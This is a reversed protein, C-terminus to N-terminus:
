AAGRVRIFIGGIGKPERLNRAIFDVVKGRIIVAMAVNGTASPFSPLVRFHSRMDRARAPCVPSPFM